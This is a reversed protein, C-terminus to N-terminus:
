YWKPRSGDPELPALKARKWGDECHRIVCQFKKLNRFYSPELHYRQELTYSSTRRGGSSGVTRKRVERKGIADAAIRAGKEDNLGFIVLNNLNTLLVDAKDRDEMPPIISIFSQTAAVLTAKAERIEDLTNYDSAGEENGLVSKQAEDAFFVILNDNEREEASKDFRRQAHTYFLLKMFTNIHRRQTSFKKPISVCIVKGQDIESFAFNPHDSSFVDAIEPHVYPALYNTITAKVGGLQQEPQSFYNERFHETIKQREESPEADLMGVVDNLMSDSAFLDYCFSLTVPIGAEELAMLGYTIQTRAQTKFFANSTKQGLATAVDIIMTAYTEAPITRDALFNFRNIPAWDDPAQDPKTRLLVLKESANLDEFMPVLIQWFAGKEDSCMGGWDPCNRTLQRVMANIVALTKGCGSRGVIIWHRCFDEMDWSMGSLALVIKGFKVRVGIVICFGMLGFVLYANQRVPPPTLLLGMAFPSTALATALHATEVRFKVLM